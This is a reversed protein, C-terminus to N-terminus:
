KTGINLENDAQLTVFVSRGDAVQLDSIRFTICIETPGDHKPFKLAPPSSPSSGTNNCQYPNCSSLNYQMATSVQLLKHLLLRQLLHQPHKMQFFNILLM